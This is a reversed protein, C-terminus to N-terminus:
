GYRKEFENLWKVRRKPDMSFGELLLARLEDFLGGKTDLKKCLAVVTHQEMGGFQKELRYVTSTSVNLLRAIRYPTVGEKKLFLIALRKAFMIRETHTFFENFFTGATKKDFEAM